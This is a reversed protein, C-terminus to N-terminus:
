ASGQTRSGGEEENSDFQTKKKRTHKTNMKLPNVLLWSTTFHYNVKTSSPTALSIVVSPRQTATIALILRAKAALVM